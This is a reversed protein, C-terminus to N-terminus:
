QILQVGCEDCSDDEDDLDVILGVNIPTAVESKAISISSQVSARTISAAIAVSVFTHSSSSKSKTSPRLVINSHMKSMYRIM